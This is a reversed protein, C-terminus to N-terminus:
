TDLSIDEFNIATCGMKYNKWRTNCMNDHIKMVVFLARARKGFHCKVFSEYTRGEVWPIKCWRIYVQMEKQVKEEICETEISAM